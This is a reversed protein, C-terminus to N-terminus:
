QGPCSLRCAIASLNPREMGIDALTRDDLGELQRLTSWYRIRTRLWGVMRHLYDAKSRAQPTDVPHGLLSLATSALQAGTVTVPESM